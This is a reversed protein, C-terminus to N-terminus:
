NFNDFNDFLDNDNPDDIEFIDDDFNDTDMNMQKKELEKFENEYSMLIREFKVLAKKKDKIVQRANRIYDNLDTDKNKLTSIIGMDNKILNVMGDLHNSHDDLLQDRFDNIMEM